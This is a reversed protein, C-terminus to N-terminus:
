RKAVANVYGFNFNIPPILIGDRQPLCANTDQLSVDEEIKITFISPTDYDMYVVLSIM